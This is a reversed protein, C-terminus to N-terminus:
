IYSHIHQTQPGLQRGLEMGRFKNQNIPNGLEQEQPQNKLERVVNQLEVHRVICARIHFFCFFVIWSQM